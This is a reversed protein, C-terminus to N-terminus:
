TANPDFKPRDANQEHEASQAISSPRTTPESMFDSAWRKPNLKSIEKVSNLTENIDVGASNVLDQKASSAMQRMKNLLRAADAAAKPLKHPGFIFLGLLGIVIFEGLGIDFM